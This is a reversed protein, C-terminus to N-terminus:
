EVTWGPSYEVNGNVNGRDYCLGFGNEPWSNLAGSPLTSEDPSICPCPVLLQSEFNNTRRTSKKRCVPWVNILPFLYDNKALKSTANPWESLFFLFHLLSSHFLILGKLQKITCENLCLTTLKIPTCRSGTQCSHQKLFVDIPDNKHM